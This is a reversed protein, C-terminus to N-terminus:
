KIESLISSFLAKTEAKESDEKSEEDIIRDVFATATVFLESQSLLNSKSKNKVPSQEHHL